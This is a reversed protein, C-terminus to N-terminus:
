RKRWFDQLMSKENDSAAAICAPPLESVADVALHHKYGLEYTEEVRGVRADLDSYRRSDLCSLVDGLRADM